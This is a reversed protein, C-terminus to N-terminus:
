KNIEYVLSLFYISYECENKRFLKNIKKWKHINKEIKNYYINSDTSSEENNENNIQEFTEDNRIHSHSHSSKIISEEIQSKNLEKSQSGIYTSSNININNNDNFDSKFLEKVLTSKRKQISIIKTHELEAKKLNYLYDPLSYLNEIIEDETLDFDEEDESFAQLLVSTFLNFIIYNGLFIWLSYYFFVIENMNWLEYLLGDWNEMTLVQYTIYFGETFSRYHINASLLSMGLLEFILILMILIIVIYSVSTIAKTMSVIILRMSKLRRLVKALRLIRFIRFVRLFSLHSKVFNQSQSKEEEESDSPLVYDM